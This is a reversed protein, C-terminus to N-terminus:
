MSPASKSSLLKELFSKMVKILLLSVMLWCHLRATFVFITKMQVLFIKGAPQSPHDLLHSFALYPLPLRPFALCSFFFATSSIHSSLFLIAWICLNLWFLSIRNLFSLFKLVIILIFLIKKQRDNHKESINNRLSLLNM